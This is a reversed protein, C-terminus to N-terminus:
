RRALAKLARIGAEVVRDGAFEGHLALTAEYGGRWYDMRDLIYGMWGNVHSCVVVWEFGLNRGADRIERGLHSTPEGPVGVVALKGIRFATIEATPPAFKDVLSQALPEPIGNAKAFEPHPRPKELAIPERVFRLEGHGLDREKATLPLRADVTKEFAAIREESTAGGSAPSVDGIAGPFVLSERRRAVEGPWDGSTTMRDSDYITAHAAYATFVPMGNLRFETLFRDPRALLRRGRNLPAEAIAYGPDGVEASEKSALIVAEGIRDAYWELWRRKYSAIGPISFTMRDNLMQSDPACHTHTAVLFLDIGPGIRKQVERQLSEPITLMEASVLAVRIGEHNLIAVRVHLPEGGPQALKGGRATYGGLPLLEPPTLELEARQVSFVSLAAVLPLIM